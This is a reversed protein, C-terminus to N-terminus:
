IKKAVLMMSKWLYPARGVGSFGVARFGNQEVLQTLTKRSWFKIHGGHWLAGHHKDWQNLLSLALNKLYGHYPTTLILYGGDRLTQAAYRPLLHPAFLHEVVETSVVAEFPREQALLEAPDDHVGFNYFPLGPYTRRAIAVGQTDCESGAVEYGARALESCLKGNGSGLDLVRKIKLQELMSMVKPAIYGCSHPGEATDWGYDGVANDRM